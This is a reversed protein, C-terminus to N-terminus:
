MLGPEGVDGTPRYAEIRRLEELSVWVQRGANRVFDRSVIFTVKVEKGDEEITVGQINERTVDEPKEFLGQCFYLFHEFQEKNLDKIITM